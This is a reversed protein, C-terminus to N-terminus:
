TRSQTMQLHILFLLYTTAFSSGSLRVTLHANPEDHETRIDLPADDRPHNQSANLLHVSITAAKASSVNTMQVTVSTTAREDILREGQTYRGDVLALVTRADGRVNLVLRSDTDDYTGEVRLPEGVTSDAADVLRRKIRDASERDVPGMRVVLAVDIVRVPPPGAETANSTM